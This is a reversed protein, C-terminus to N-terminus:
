PTPPQQFAHFEVELRGGAARSADELEAKIWNRAAGIGVEPDTTSSLTHRTKFGALKRISAEIRAASIQAVIQDISGERPAPLPKTEQGFAAAVLGASFLVVRCSSRM